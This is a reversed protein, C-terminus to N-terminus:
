SRAMLEVALGYIRFRMAEPLTKLVALYTRAAECMREDKLPPEPVAGDLLAAIEPKTLGGAQLARELAAFDSDNPPKREIKKAQGDVIAALSAQAMEAVAPRHQASFDFFAQTAGGYLFDVCLRADYRDLAAMLRAQAEFVRSLAPGDAKAAVIGRTQRLARLGESLAVDPTDEGGNALRRTALQDVIQARDGPFHEGLRAFFAAFDPAEAILKEVEVRAKAMQEPNPSLIAETRPKTSVAAAAPPRAPAFVWWVGALLAAVLALVGALAVYAVPKIRRLRDRASEPAEGFDM